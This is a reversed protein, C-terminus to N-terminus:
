YKKNILIDLIKDQTKIIKENSKEISELRSNLEVRPVFIEFQTELPLHAKEDKQHILVEQKIEVVESTNNKISQQMEAQIAGGKFSWFMLIVLNALTLWTSAHKKVYNRNEVTM